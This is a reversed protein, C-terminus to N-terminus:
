IRYMGNMLPAEDRVVIQMVPNLWGDDTPNLDALGSLPRHIHVVGEGGGNNLNGSAPDCVPGPISDCLENNEETGADYAPEFIYQGPFASYMPTGNLAVFGDNTNLMMAAITVCEYKPSIQLSITFTRMDGTAIAGVSAVGAQYGYFDVLPQPDGDQALSQLNQSAPKGAEFLPTTYIDHVMVFFASFPQNYSLNTVQLYINKIGDDESPYIKDPMTQPKVAPRIPPPPMSWESGGWESSTNSDDDDDAPEPAIWKPITSENVIKKRRRNSDGVNKQKKRTGLNRRSAETIPILLLLSATTLIRM